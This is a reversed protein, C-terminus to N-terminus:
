DPAASKGAAKTAERPRLLVLEGSPDFTATAALGPFDRAWARYSNRSAIALDANRPVARDLAVFGDARNFFLMALTNPHGSIMHLRWVVDPAVQIISPKVAEIEERFARWPYLVREGRQTNHRYSLESASQHFSVGLFALTTILALALRARWRRFCLSALLLGTLLVAPIQTAHLFHEPPWGYRAAFEVPVLEEAALEGALYPTVVLCIATAALYLPVLTRPSILEKFRPREIGLHFFITGGVLCAAPMIPILMRPSFIPASLRSYIVILMLLYTAPFLYLLCRELPVRRVSAVFPAVIALVWLNRLGLGAGQAGVPWLTHIWGLDPRHAVWRSGALFDVVGRQFHEPRVAWWFDGIRIADATMLVLLAAILGGLWYAMRRAFRRLDIRGQAWLFLAPLFFIIVGTAKSKCAAITLVGLALAHWEHRARSPEVSRGHLFVALAITLIMMLTFDTYAAGLPRTITAQSFLLFLTVALTRLQLRSGLSRVAVALATVTVAFVFSGYVRSGFFPDGGGFLTIFAKLLYVHVMRNFLGLAESGFQSVLVYHADDGALTTVTWPMSAVWTVVFLALFFAAYLVRRSRLPDGLRAPLRDLTRRGALRWSELFKPRPAGHRWAARFSLFAFLLLLAGLLRTGLPSLPATVRRLFRYLWVPGRAYLIEEPLAVPEGGPPTWEIGLGVERGRQSLGIEISHTGEELTVTTRTRRERRPGTADLVRAGDLQLYGADDAWIAIEHPGGKEVFLEGRWRVSFIAESIVGDLDALQDVRPMQVDSFLPEGQWEIDLLFFETRLGPEDHLM